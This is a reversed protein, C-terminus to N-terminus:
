GGVHPPVPTPPRHFVRRHRDLRDALDEVASHVLESLGLVELVVGGLPPLGRAGVLQARGHLLDGQAQPGEPDVLAITHSDEGFVPRLPRDGVEPGQAGPGRIRGDVGRQGGLLHGVDQLVGPRLDYEDRVGDLGGLHLLNAGLQRGKVVDHAEVQVRDGPRRGELLEPRAAALSQCPVALGHTTPGRLHAGLVEGGDDVGRARGAVRLAHHEGWPFRVELTRAERFAM